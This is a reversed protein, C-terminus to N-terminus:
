NKERFIDLANKTGFYVVTRDRGYELPSVYGDAAKAMLAFLEASSELGKQADEETKYYVIQALEKGELTIKQAYVSAFATSESQEVEDGAEVTYGAENYRQYLTKFDMLEAKSSCAAFSLTLLFLAFLLPLIRSIKKM